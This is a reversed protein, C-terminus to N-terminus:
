RGLGNSEIRERLRRRGSITAPALCGPPLLVGHGDHKIVHDNRRTVLLLGCPKKSTDEAKGIFAGDRMESRHADVSGQGQIEIRVFGAMRLMKGELHALLLEVLDKCADLAFADGISAPWKRRFVHLDAAIPSFVSKIEAIRALM